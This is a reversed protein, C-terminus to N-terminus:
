KAGGEKRGDVINRAKLAIRHYEMARERNAECVNPDVMRMGLIAIAHTLADSVFKQDTDDLTIM